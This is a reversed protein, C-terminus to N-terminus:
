QADAPLEELAPKGYDVYYSISAQAKLATIWKEAEKNFKQNKLQERIQNKFDDESMGAPTAAKSLSIYQTVEEDTVTLKDALLKEIKKQRLIETRFDDEAVNQQALAEKLTSGQAMIQKEIMEIEADVDAQSVVIGAKNVETEILKQTILVDLAQQGSAKELEKIVSLRSIPTGNVTAAIFLSKCALFIGIVAVAVLVIITTRKDMKFPPKKATKTATENKQEQPAPTQNEM